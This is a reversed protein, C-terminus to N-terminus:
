RPTIDPAYRSVYKDAVKDTRVVVSVDTTNFPVDQMAGDGIFSGLRLYGKILAPLHMFARKVNISEKPMMDMDVYHQPLARPCIDDPARHFHHLYSLCEAHDRADSGAFSACGFMLDIHYHTLYEGIGRWLLQMAAKNRYRADVCSRGLELTQLGQHSKIASIDFESESYFRGINTMKSSRLLRYTGVVHYSGDLENRDEVLLHDCVTDFEDADTTIGEPPTAGMEEFFVRYRLQQSAKVDQACDAVRVRLSGLEIPEFPSPDFIKPTFPM